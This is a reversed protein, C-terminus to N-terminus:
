RRGNEQLPKGPAKFDSVPSARGKEEAGFTDAGKGSPAPKPAPVAAAALMSQTPMGKLLRNVDPHRTLNEALVRFAPDQSNARVLDGFDVSRQLVSMFESAPRAPPGAASQEYARRLVANAMFAESFRRAAPDGRRASLIQMLEGFSLPARSAPSEPLILPEISRGESPALTAMRLDRASLHPFLELGLAMGLCLIGGLLMLILRRDLVEGVAEQAERRVPLDM